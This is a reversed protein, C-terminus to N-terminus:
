QKVTKKETKISVSDEIEQKEILLKEHIERINNLKKLDDGFMKNFKEIVKQKIDM